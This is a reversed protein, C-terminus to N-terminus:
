PSVRVQQDVEFPGRLEETGDPWRIQLTADGAAVGLGFDAVAAHPGSLGQGSRIEDVRDGDVGEQSLVIRAGLAPLGHDDLVAVGLYHGDTETTNWWVGVGAETGVVLDVDGDDDLDGHVVAQPEFGMREPDPFPDFDVRSFGGTGDNLLLMSPASPTEAQSPDCAVTTFADPTAELSATVFLDVAGNRDFDEAVVGWTVTGRTLEALGSAAGDGYFSHCDSATYLGDPGMDTVYLDRMGDGDFDALVSGMAHDYVDLGSSDPGPALGDDTGVLLRNAAFNNGLFVDTHGDGDLDALSATWPLPTEDVVLPDPCHGDGAPNFGGDGDGLACLIDGPEYDSITATRDTESSEFVLDDTCGPDRLGQVGIMVDLPAEGDLDIPAIWAPVNWAQDQPAPFVFQTAQWAFDRGGQSVLAGLAGGVGIVLDLDGDGHMDLVACRYVAGADGLSLSVSQESFGGAGDGYALVVEQADASVWALDLVGDRDLDELALCQPQGEDLLTHEFSVASAPSAPPQPAVGCPGATDSDTGASLVVFPEVPDICAALLLIASPATL